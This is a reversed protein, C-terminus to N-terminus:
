GVAKVWENRRLSSPRGDGSRGVVRSHAGDAPRARSLGVALYLDRRNGAAVGASVSLTLAGSADATGAFMPPVFPNLFTLGGLAPLFTPATTSWFTWFCSAGADVAQFNLAYSGSGTPTIFLDRYPGDLQDPASGSWPVGNM